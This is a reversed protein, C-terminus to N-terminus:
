MYAIVHDIIPRLSHGSGDGAYEAGCLDQGMGPLNLTAFGTAAQLYFYFDSVCVCMYFYIAIYM